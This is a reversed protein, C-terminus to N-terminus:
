NVELVLWDSLNLQLWDKSNIALWPKLQAFALNPEVARVTTIRPSGVIAGTISAAVGNQTTSLQMQQKGDVVQVALVWYRGSEIGPITGGAIEVRDGVEFPVFVNAISVGTALWTGM